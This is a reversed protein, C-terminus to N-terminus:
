RALAPQRPKVGALVNAQVEIELGLIDQSDALFIDYNEPLCHTFDINRLTPYRNLFYGACLQRAEDWNERTVPKGLMFAMLESVQDLDDFLRDSVVTTVTKYDVLKIM